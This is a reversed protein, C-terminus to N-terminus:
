GDKALRALRKEIGRWLGAIAAGAPTAAGLRVEGPSASLTEFASAM